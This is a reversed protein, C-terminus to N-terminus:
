IHKILQYRLIQGYQHVIDINQINMKLKACSKWSGYNDIRSMAMVSKLQHNNILYGDQKLRQAYQLLTSVQVTGIGSYNFQNNNSPQHSWCEIRNLFAIEAIGIHNGAGINAFGLFTDTQSDYLTFGSYLYLSSNKDKFRQILTNIRQITSQFSLINGDSYKQRVLPQSNLHNYIDNIDKEEVSKFLYNTQKYQIDIFVKTTEDLENEISIHAIPDQFDKQSELYNNYKIKAEEIIDETINNNSSM